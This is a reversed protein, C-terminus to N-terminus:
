GEVILRRKRGVAAHHREDGRPAPVRLDPGHIEARLLNAVYDVMRSPVEPRCPRWISLPDREGRVPVRGPRMTGVAEFQDLLSFDVYRMGVAGAQASQRM